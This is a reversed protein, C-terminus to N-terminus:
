RLVFWWPLVFGILLVLLVFAGVRAATLSETTERHEAVEKLYEEKIEHYPRHAAASERAEDREREL